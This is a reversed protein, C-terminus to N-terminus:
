GLHIWKEAEFRHLNASLTEYSLDRSGLLSRSVGVSLLDNDLSGGGLSQALLWRNDCECPAMLSNFRPFFNVYSIEV